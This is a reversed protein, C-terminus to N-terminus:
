RAATSHIFRIKWGDKVKMFTASELYRAPAYTSDGITFQAERVYYMSANQKGIHANVDHLRFNASFSPMNRLTEVATENTYVKGEDYMVFNPATLNSLGQIDSKSLTEYYAIILRGLEEKRDKM